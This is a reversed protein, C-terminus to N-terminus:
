RPADLYLMSRIHQIAETQASFLSSPRLERWVPLRWQPDASREHITAVFLGSKDSVVGLLQSTEDFLEFTTPEGSSWLGGHKEIFV